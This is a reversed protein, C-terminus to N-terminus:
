FSNPFVIYVKADHLFPQKYKFQKKKNMIVDHCIHVTLNWEAFLDELILIASIFIFSHFHKVPKLFFTILLNM